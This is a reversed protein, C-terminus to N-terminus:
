RLMCAQDEAPHRDRRLHAVQDHLEAYKGVEEKEGLEVLDDVRRSHLHPVGQM